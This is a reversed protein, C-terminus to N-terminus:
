ITHACLIDRLMCAKSQQYYPVVYMIPLLTLCVCAWPLFSVDLLFLQMCHEETLSCSGRVASRVGKQPSRALLIPALAYKQNIVAAAVIGTLLCVSGGALTFLRIMNNQRDDFLMGAALIATGPVSLLLKWAAKRLRVNLFLLAARFGRGRRLWYVFQLRSPERGCASCYMWAARGQRVSGTIAFSLLLLAIQVGALLYADYPIGSFVRPLYYSACGPLVTMFVISLTIRAARLKRTKLCNRAEKKCNTVSM